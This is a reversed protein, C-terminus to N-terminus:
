FSVRRPAATFGKVVVADHMGKIIPQLIEFQSTDEYDDPIFELDVSFYSGKIIDVEIEDDEGDPTAKNGFWVLIPLNDETFVGFKKLRYTSPTWEIFVKTSYETFSLDSPKSFVDLKEATNYSDTTPIFLSCDIGYASLSVDVYTRMVDITRRPIM